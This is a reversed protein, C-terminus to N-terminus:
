ESAMGTSLRPLLVMKFVGDNPIRNVSTVAILFDDKGARMNWIEEFVLPWSWTGKIVAANSWSIFTTNRLASPFIFHGDALHSRFKEWCLNGQVTGPDMLQKSNFMFLLFFPQWLSFLMRYSAINTRHMAKQLSALSCRSQQMLKRGKWHFFNAYDKFM